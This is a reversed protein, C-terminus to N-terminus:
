NIEDLYEVIWEVLDGPTVLTITGKYGSNTIIHATHNGDVWISLIAGGSKDNPNVFILKPSFHTEEGKVKWFLDYFIINDQSNVRITKFRPLKDSLEKIARAVSRGSPTKLKTDQIASAKIRCVAEAADRIRGIAEKSIAM